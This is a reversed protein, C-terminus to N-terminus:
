VEVEEYAKTAHLPVEGLASKCRVAHFPVETTHICFNVCFCTEFSEMSFTRICIMTCVNLFTNEATNPCATVFDKYVYYCWSKNPVTYQPVEMEQLFLSVETSHSSM